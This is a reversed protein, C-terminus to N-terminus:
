LLERVRQGTRSRNMPWVQWVRGAAVAKLFVYSRQHDPLNAAPRKPAVRTKREGTLAVSLLVVVVGEEESWVSVTKPWVDYSPYLV